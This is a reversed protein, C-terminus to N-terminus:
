KRYDIPKKEGMKPQDTKAGNQPFNFMPTSTAYNLVLGIQKAEKMMTNPSTDTKPHHQITNARATL